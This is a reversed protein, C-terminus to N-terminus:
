EPPALAPDCTEVAATLQRIRDSTEEGETLYDGAWLVGSDFEPPVDLQEMWWSTLLAHANYVASNIDDDPSACRELSPPIAYAVAVALDVPDASMTVLVGEGAETDESYTAPVKLDREVAIEAARDAVTMLGPLAEEHEPWVCVESRDSEVCSLDGARPAAPSWDFEDVQAVATQSGVAVLAVAAFAGVLRPVTRLSMAVGALILSTWLLVQAVLVQPAITQEITCCDGVVFLHRLWLPHMAPPVAMVGYGLALVMPAAIVVPVFRGLVQGILSAALLNVAAVGLLPLYPVAWAGETLMVIVATVVVGLLGVSAQAAAVSIAAQVPHRVAARVSGRMARHTAGAFVGATAVMPVIFVLPSMAAVTVSVGRLDVPYVGVIGVFVAVAVAVFAALVPLRALRNIGPSM